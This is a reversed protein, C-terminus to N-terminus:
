PHTDKDPLLIIIESGIGVMSEAWIVGGFSEVAWKCFALGLGAGINERGTRSKVQTFRDFIRGLEQQPMGNGTDRVSLRTLRVSKSLSHPISVYPPIQALNDQTNEVSSCSVEIEGDEPTFKLSNGLLNGLIRGFARSDVALDTVSSDINISFSIGDHKATRAFPECSKRIIEAINCSRINLPMKGTEFRRIDLLNDIMTVVENCSDIASQLYEVQEENVPGLRGERIIDISGIVATMPNKMDHSLMLSFNEKEQELLRKEILEQRHNRAREIRQFLDSLVFPKSVYDEAGNRMCEVAMEENGHGSMMVVAADCGSNRLQKLVTLGDLDPMSIDLLVLAFNNGDLMLDLATQGDDAWSTSYGRDELYLKLTAAVEPNDDVILIKDPAHSAM